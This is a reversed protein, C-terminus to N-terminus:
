LLAEVIQVLRDLGADAGQVRKRVERWDGRDAPEQIDRGAWYAAFIVAAVHPDLALEPHNALDDGMGIERGYTLYNDKWTLQIFGRGYYPYYRLNARRWADSTWFAEEVPEFTSATEIAVTAAAAALSNRSGQGWTTLVKAILPWNKRVSEVRGPIGCAAAIAEATWESASSVFAPPRL